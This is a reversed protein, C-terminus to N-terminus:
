GPQESRGAITNKQIGSQAPSAPEPARRSRRLIPQHGGRSPEPGSRRAGRDPVPQQGLQAALRRREPDHGRRQRAVLHLPARVNCFCLDPGPRSPRRSPHDRASLGGRPRPRAARARASRPGRPRERLSGAPALAPGRCPSRSPPRARPIGAAARRGTGPRSGQRAVPWSGARRVGVAIAPVRHLDRLLRDEAEVSLNKFCSAARSSAPIVIQAEFRSTRTGPEPGRGAIGAGDNEQIEVMGARRVPPDELPCELGIPCDVDGQRM